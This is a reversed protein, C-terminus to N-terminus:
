RNGAIWTSEYDRFSTRIPNLRSSVDRRDASMALVLSMYGINAGIDLSTEGPDTLRM